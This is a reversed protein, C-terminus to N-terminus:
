PKIRALKAIKRKNARVLKGWDPLEAVRHSKACERCVPNNTNEHWYRTPAKCFHCNEVIGGFGRIADEDELEVPITM